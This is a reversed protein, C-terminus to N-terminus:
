IGAAFKCYDVVISSTEENNLHGGDKVPIEKSKMKNAFDLINKVEVYPDDTGYLSYSSSCLNQLKTFDFKSYYFSKNVEKVQWAPKKLPNIFPSVFVARHLQLKYKHLVHLIFLPGTSHGVFVLKGEKKIEDLYMEFTNLWSTLNQKLTHENETIEDWTDIPFKPFIIKEGLKELKPLWYHTIQESSNFSGHFLVFTM